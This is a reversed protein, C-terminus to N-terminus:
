TALIHGAVDDGLIEIVFNGGSGPLSIKSAIM